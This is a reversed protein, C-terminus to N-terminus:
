KKLRLNVYRQSPNFKNLQYSFIDSICLIKGHCLHLMLDWDVSNWFNMVSKNSDKESRIFILIESYIDLSKGIELLIQLFLFSLLLFLAAGTLPRSLTFNNLVMLANNRHHAQKEERFLLLWNTWDAKIPNIEHTRNM